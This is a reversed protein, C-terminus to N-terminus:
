IFGLGKINKTKQPKIPKNKTKNNKKTKKQWHCSMKTMRLIAILHDGGCM